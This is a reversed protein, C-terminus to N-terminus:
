DDNDEKPIFPDNRYYHTIEQIVVVNQLLPERDRGEVRLEDGTVLYVPLKSHMLFRFYDIICDGNPEEPLVPYYMGCSEVARFVSLGAETGIVTGSSYINSRGNEPIDGFRIYLPASAYKM